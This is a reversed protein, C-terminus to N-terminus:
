LTMQGPPVDVPAFLRMSEHRPASAPPASELWQVPGHEPLGGFWAGATPFDLTRRVAIGIDARSRRGGTPGDLGTLTLYVCHANM